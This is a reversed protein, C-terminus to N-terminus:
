ELLRGRHQGREDDAQAFPELGGQDDADDGGEQDALAAAVGSRWTQSPTAAATASQRPEAEREVQELAAQRLALLLGELGDDAQDGDRQHGVHDDPHPPVGAGELAVQLGGGAGRQGRPEARASTTM